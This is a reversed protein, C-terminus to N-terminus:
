QVQTFVNDRPADEHCGACIGAGIRDAVLSTGIVEYWYWSAADAGGTVKRGVAYGSISGSSYLEKVSAAGIPYTGAASASLAANSCIRNTGHAGPPRAPHPQPECAWALYHGAALWETLMAHGMPPVQGVDAAGDPGSADAGGPETTGPSACAGTAFLALM